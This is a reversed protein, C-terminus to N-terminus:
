HCICEEKTTFKQGVFLEKHESNAVFRKAPLIDPYELFESVLAVDLDIISMHAGPDNRIVIGRNPNGVLFVDVNGNDNVGEDDIDDLVEDQDPDSYDEVKHDSSGNNDYVDDGDADTKIVMLDVQLHLSPNLNESAPPANLGIDIGRITSRRDVYVRPVVTGGM